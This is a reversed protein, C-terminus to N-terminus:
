SGRRAVKRKGDLYCCESAELLGQAESAIVQVAARAQPDAKPGKSRAILDDLHADPSLTEPNREARKRAVAPTIKGGAATTEELARKALYREREELFRATFQAAGAAEGFIASGAWANPATAHCAHLVRIMSRPMERLADEVRRHRAAAMARSAANEIAAWPDSDLQGGAQLVAVMAGYNSKAGLDGESLCFYWFVDGADARSLRAPAPLHLGTM